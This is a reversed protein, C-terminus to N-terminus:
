VSYSVRAELIEVESMFRAGQSKPLAMRVLLYHLNETTFTASTMLSQM